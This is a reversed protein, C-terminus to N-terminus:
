TQERVTGSRDRSGRNGFPFRPPERTVRPATGATGAATGYRSLASKVHLPERRKRPPATGYRTLACKPPERLFPLISTPPRSVHGSCTRFRERSDPNLIEPYLHETGPATGTM